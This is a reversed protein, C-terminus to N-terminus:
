RKVQWLGDQKILVVTEGNVTVPWEIPAGALVRIRKVVRLGGSTARAEYLGPMLDSFTKPTGIVTGGQYTIRYDNGELTEIHWYVTGPAGVADLTFSDGIVEAPGNIGFAPAPAPTPTVGKLMWDM